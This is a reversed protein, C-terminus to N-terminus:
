DNKIGLKKLQEAEEKISTYEGRKKNAGVISNRFAALEIQMGKVKPRKVAEVANKFYSDLSNIVTFLAQVESIQKNLFSLITEESSSEIRSYEPSKSAILTYIREKKAIDGLFENVKIKETKEVGTKADKVSIQCIKEKPPIHFAKKIAESLKAFLGQKKAFVLDFNEKIKLELAKLTPAMAGLVLVGALLFEKTNIEEKKAKREVTEEIRLKAFVAQQRQEKDAGQDEAIIEAVLENYFPKKGLVKAYLRKIEALENEPSSFAKQKNFEPHEFLDKRLEGKYFERQFNGLESLGKDIIKVAEASKSISDSVMSLVVAPAGARATNLLTALVRTNTKANNISLDNWNFVANFDLLKKINQISMNESSFRYYTCIFDLMIEYDSFREGFITPIETENFPSSDPVVIESIRKDLRYPDPEILSKKTLLEYLNRVCSHMLRYQNLIEPLIKGNFWEQKAQLAQQLEKSFEEIEM